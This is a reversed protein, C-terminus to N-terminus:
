ISSHRSLETPTNTSRLGLISDSPSGPFIVELPNALTDIANLPGAQMKAAQM